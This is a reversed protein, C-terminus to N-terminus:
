DRSKIKLSATVFDIFSDMYVYFFSLWLHAFVLACSFTDKSLFPIKQLSKSQLVGVACFFSLPHITIAM